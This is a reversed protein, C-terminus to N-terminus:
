TSQFNSIIPHLPPRPFHDLLSSSSPLVSHTASMSSIDSLSLDEPVRAAMKGKRSSCGNHGPRPQGKARIAKREKKRVEDAEKKLRLNRAKDLCSRSVLVAKSIHRYDSKSKKPASAIKRVTEEAITAAALATGATTALAV